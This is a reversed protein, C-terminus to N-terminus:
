GHKPDINIACICVDVLKSPSTSPISPPVLLCIWCGVVVGDLLVLDVSLEISCQPWFPHLKCSSKILARFHQLICPRLLHVNQLILCILRLRDECLQPWPLAHALALVFVFCGHLDQVLFRCGAVIYFAPVRVFPMTCRYSMVCCSIVLHLMHACLFPYGSIIVCCRCLMCSLLASWIHRLVSVITSKAPQGLPGFLKRSMPAFM